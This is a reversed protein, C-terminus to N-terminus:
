ICSRCRFTSQERAFRVAIRRVPEEYRGRPRLAHCERRAIFVDDLISLQPKQTDNLQLDSDTRPDAPEYCTGTEACRPALFNVVRNSLEPLPECISIFPATETLGYVQTVQWGLEGELREIATFVARIPFPLSLLMEELVPIL